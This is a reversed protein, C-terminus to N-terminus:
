AAAAMKLISFARFWRERRVHQRKCLKDPHTHPTHAQKNKPSATCQESVRREAKTADHKAATHMLSYGDANKQKLLYQIRPDQQLQKLVAVQDHQAALHAFNCTENNETTVPVSAGSPNHQSEKLWANFFKNLASPQLQMLKQMSIVTQTVETVLEPFTATLSLHLKKQNLKDAANSATDTPHLRSPAKRKM